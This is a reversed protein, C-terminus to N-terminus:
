PTDTDEQPKRKLRVVGTLYLIAGMAMILGFLWYPWIPSNHANAATAVIYGLMATLGAGALGGGALALHRTMPGFTSEDSWVLNRGRRASAAASGKLRRPSPLTVRAATIHRSVVLVVAVGILYYFAFAVAGGSLSGTNMGHLFDVYLLISAVIPALIVLLWALLRASIRAMASVGRARRTMLGSVSNVIEPVETGLTECTFIVYPSMRFARGIQLSAICGASIARFELGRLSRPRLNQRPVGAERMWISVSNVLADLGPVGSAERLAGGVETTELEQRFCRFDRNKVKDRQLHLGMVGDRPHLTLHWEIRADERRGSQRIFSIAEARIVALDERSLWCRAKKVFTTRWIANEEGPEGTALGPQSHDVM